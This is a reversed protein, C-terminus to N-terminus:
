KSKERDEDRKKEKDKRKRMIGKRKIDTKKKKVKEM